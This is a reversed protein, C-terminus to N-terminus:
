QERVLTPCISGVFNKAPVVIDLETDTISEKNSYGSTIPFIVM